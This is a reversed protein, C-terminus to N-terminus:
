FSIHALKGIYHTNLTTNLFLQTKNLEVIYIKLIHRVRGLYM